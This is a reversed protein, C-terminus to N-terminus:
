RHIAQLTMDGCQGALLLLSDKETQNVTLDWRTKVAAWEGIYRCWERLPM